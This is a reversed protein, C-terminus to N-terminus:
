RQGAESMLGLLARAAELPGTTECGPVGLRTRIQGVFVGAQFAVEFTSQALRDHLDRYQPPGFINAFYSHVLGKSTTTGKAMAAGERFVRL